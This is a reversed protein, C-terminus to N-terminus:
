RVQLKQEFTGENTTTKLLYTGASITTLPLAVSHATGSMSFVSRGNPQILMCSFPTLAPFQVLGNQSVEFTGSSLATLTARPNAAVVRELKYVVLSDIWLTDPADVKFFIKLRNAAVTDGAATIYDPCVLKKQYRGFTTQNDTGIAVTEVDKTGGTSPKYQWQLMVKKVAATTSTKYYYKVMINQGAALVPSVDISTKPEIQVYTQTTPERRYIKMSGAGEHAGITDLEFAISPNTSKWFSIDAATNFMSGPIDIPTIIDVTGQALASGAVVLALSVAAYRRIM